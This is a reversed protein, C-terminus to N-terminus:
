PLPNVSPNFGIYNNMAGMVITYAILGLCILMFILQMWWKHTFRVFKEFGENYFEKEFWNKACIQMYGGISLSNARILYWLGFGGPFGGPIMTVLCGLLPAGLFGVHMLSVSASFEGTVFIWNWITYALVWTITAANNAGTAFYYNYGDGPGNNVGGWSGCMFIVGAALALGSVFNFYQKHKFDTLTAELINIIMAAMVIYKAYIGGFGFIVAFVVLVRLTILTGLKLKEFFVPKALFFTLIAPIVIIPVNAWIPEFASLIALGCIAATFLVFKIILEITPRPKFKGIEPKLHADRDVLKTSEAAAQNTQM